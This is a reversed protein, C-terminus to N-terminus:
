SPDSSSPGGRAPPFRMQAEDRVQNTPSESLHFEEFRCHSGAPAISSSGTTYCLNAVVMPLAVLRRGLGVPRFAPTKWPGARGRLIRRSVETVIRPPRVSAAGPGLKIMLKVVRVLKRQYARRVGCRVNGAESMGMSRLTRKRPAAAVSGGFFAVWGSRDVPRHWEVAM